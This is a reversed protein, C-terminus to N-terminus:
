QIRGNTNSFLSTIGLWSRSVASQASVIAKYREVALDHYQDTENMVAAIASTDVFIIREPPTRSLQSPHSSTPM